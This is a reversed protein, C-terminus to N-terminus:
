TVPTTFNRAVADLEGDDFAGDRLAILYRLDLMQGQRLTMPEHFLIAYNWFTMAGAKAYIPQPARPNDPHCVVGMSVTRELSGDARGTMIFWPARQGAVSECPSAGPLHFKVEHLERSGRFSLGGYGGWTTFPTRDLVVDTVAQLRTTWEMTRTFGGANHTPADTRGFRLQRHERLVVGRTGTWAIDHDFKIQGNTEVSALPEAESSQVGFPAHEEWFNEGNIFKIAFWLGRHWVHDSMQFGSLCVGGDTVLPHICPKPLGAAYRYCLRAATHTDILEISRGIQQTFQHM